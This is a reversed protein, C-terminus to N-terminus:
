FRWSLGGYVEQQIESGLTSIASGSGYELHHADLLNRGVLFVEFHDQPSWALRIDGVFYNPVGLASLNDVYRGILDLRWHRGLDGTLWLNFENRPNEGPLALLQLDPDLARLSMCLFSYAGRLRWQENLTYTAAL